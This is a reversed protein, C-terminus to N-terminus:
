PAGLTLTHDYRAKPGRDYATDIALVRRKAASLSARGDTIAIVDNTELGCHVPATLHDNRTTLIVQERQERAARDTAQAGTTLYPDARQRPASYLLQAEDDDLDEAVVSADEAAFVQIHNAEKLADRYTAASIHQDASGLPRGYDADAADAALPENLYLFESRTLLHDPLRDLIARFATLASTGPQVTLPPYLNASQSSAGSSTLEYGVRAAIHRLQQFANKDAAALALARPFRHRALHTWPSGLIVRLTARGKEYVHEFSEIHYTPGLSYRPGSATHYGPGIIVDAGKTLAAVAGVGPSDYKGTSNDLIVESLRPSLPHEHLRASVIDDTLDLTAHQAPSHYVYRATTFFVHDDDHAIALGYAAVIATPVPERWLNDVYSTTAPQHTHAIRDYAATGTHQQRLTLRTTDPHALFPRTYSLGSDPHALEILTEGGWTDVAYSYGDGFIIQRLHSGAPNTCTFAVNWDNSYAIALGTLVANTTSAGKNTWTSGNYRWATISTSGAGTNVVVVIHGNAKGAAALHTVSASHTFAVAWASWTAGHDTSRSYAVQAPYAPAVRFCWLDSGARCLAVIAATASTSTLCAAPSTCLSITCKARPLRKSTSKLFLFRGLHQMQAGMTTALM